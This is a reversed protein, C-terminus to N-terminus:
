RKMAKENIGSMFLGGEAIGTLTKNANGEEDLSKQLLKAFDDYGLHQAFARLTGYVAMEYHEVRQASTILAADRVLSEPYRHITEDGEEVLGKMAECTEGDFEVDLKSFIEDLRKVQNQTEKLHKEFAEKLKPTSAAEAMKPLTELLQNEASYIDNLQDLFLQYFENKSM